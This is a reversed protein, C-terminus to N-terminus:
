GVSYCHKEQTQWDLWSSAAVECTVEVLNIFCYQFFFNFYSLGFSFYFINTSHGLSALSFLYPPIEAGFFFFFSFLLLLVLIWEGLIVFSISIKQKVVRWQHFLLRAFSSSGSFMIIETLQFFIMLLRHHPHCYSCSNSHGVIHCKYKWLLWGSCLSREDGNQSFHHAQSLHQKFKLGFPVYTTHSHIYYVASM